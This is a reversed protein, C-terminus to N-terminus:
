AEETRRRYRWGQGLVLLPHEDGSGTEGGAPDRGGMREEVRMWDGTRMRTEERQTKGERVAENKKRPM